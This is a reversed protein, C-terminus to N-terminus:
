PQNGKLPQIRLPHTAGDRKVRVHGLHELRRLQEWADHYDREMRIVAIEYLNVAWGDHAAM